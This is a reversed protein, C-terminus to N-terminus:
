QQNEHRRKPHAPHHVSVRSFYRIQRTGATFQCLVQDLSQTKLTNTDFRRIDPIVVIRFVTHNTKGLAIPATFGESSDRDGRMFDTMRNLMM